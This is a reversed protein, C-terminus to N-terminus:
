MMEHEEQNPIKQCFEKEDELAKIEVSITGRKPALKYAISL